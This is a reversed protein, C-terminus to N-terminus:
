RIAIPIMITFTTGKGEASEVKIDGDHKKVIDYAISLGLGTGKGVEKTTYFPEFIREIRDAPIGSGTDSISVYINDKDDWTRIGIEGQSEIADAANLLMNMFVQNLQGPNCKIMPIDGYEKKLAVKYKLENWVINITSEIGANIDTMKHATEDVHSFSKLNQVIKKVRDAGDLSEKVLAVIDETIYDIKLSKRLTEIRGVTDGHERKSGVTPAKLEGVKPRTGTDKTLASIAESQAKIFERLKSVYKDLTGLNSIIYGMPNNIEHAVGAALQGISAMKERQLLQSQASKLEAYANELEANKQKISDEAIKSRTIDHLTIVAAYPGVVDEVPVTYSNYNFWAGSSHSLELKGPDKEVFIFGNGKLVDMWQRNQLSNYPKGTLLTLVKNCRVINQKADILIVADNICDLTMEWERKVNEVIRITDTLMENKIKIDEFERLQLLNRIRANLEAYDIPKALFDNAGAELCQMKTNGDAFGTMVIIPIYRTEPDKRTSKCVDIGNIGPMFIDLLILDPKTARIKELAEVGNEATATAYGFHSLVETLVVLTQKDDDVILIKNISEGAPDNM